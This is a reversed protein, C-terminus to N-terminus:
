IRRHDAERGAPYAQRAEKASEEHLREHGLELVLENGGASHIESYRAVFDHVFFYGKEIVFEHDGLAIVHGLRRGDFSRVVMGEHVQSRDVM